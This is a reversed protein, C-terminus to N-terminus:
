LISSKREFTTMSIHWPDGTRFIKNGQGLDSVIPVLPCSYKPVLSGQELYIIM